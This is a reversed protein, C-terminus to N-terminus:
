ANRGATEPRVSDTSLGRWGSPPSRSSDKKKFEARQSLTQPPTSAPSEAPVPLEFKPVASILNRGLEDLRLKKVPSAFTKWWPGKTQNVDDRIELPPEPPFKYKSSSPPTRTIEQIVDVEEVPELSGKAGFLNELPSLTQCGTQTEEEVEEPRKTLRTGPLLREGGTPPGELRERKKHYLDGVGGREQSVAVHAPSKLMRILFGEPNAHQTHQIQGPNFLMSVLGDPRGLRLHPLRPPPWADLPPAM